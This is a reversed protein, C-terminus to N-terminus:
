RREKWWALTAWRGLLRRYYSEFLVNAVHVEMKCLMTNISDPCNIRLCNQQTCQLYINSTITHLQTLIWVLFIMSQLSREKRDISLEVFDDLQTEDVMVFLERCIILRSDLSCFSVLCLFFLTWFLCWSQFRIDLSWNVVIVFQKHNMVTM